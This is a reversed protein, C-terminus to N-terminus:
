VPSETYEILGEVEVSVPFVALNSRLGDFGSVRYRFVACRCVSELRWSEYGAGSSV